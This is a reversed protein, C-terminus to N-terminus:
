EGWDMSAEANSWYSEFQERVKHFYASDQGTGGATPKWTFPESSSMLDRIAMPPSDGHERVENRRVEYLSTLAVSNNLIYYKQQPLTPLSRIEVRVSARRRYEAVSLLSHELQRAYTRIIGRLRRLPRQDTPDSILEPLGHDVVLSPLLVRARISEPVPAKGARIRVVQQAVIQSLNETTLSWVDLSVDAAAFAEAVWDDLTQPTTHGAVVRPGRGKGGEDILGWARLIKLAHQVTVLSVEYQKALVRQKPVQEGPEIRNDTIQERLDEAIRLYKHRGPVGHKEGERGTLAM